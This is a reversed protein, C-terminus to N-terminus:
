LGLLTLLGVTWLPPLVQVLWWFRWRRRAARAALLMLLGMPLCLITGLMEYATGHPGPRDEPALLVILLLATGLGTVVLGLVRTFKWYATLIAASDLVSGITSM